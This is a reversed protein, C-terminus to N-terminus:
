EVIILYYMCNKLKAAIGQPMHIYENQSVRLHRGMPRAIIDVISNRLVPQPQKIFVDHEADHFMIDLPQLLNGNSLKLGAAATATLRM